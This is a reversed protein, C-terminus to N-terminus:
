LWAARGLADADPNPGVVAVALSGPQFVRRAVRQLDDATVAQIRDVVEDPPEIFGQVLLQEGHRQGLAMTGELGLRFSGATFDRAKHLEDECVPEQGVRRLQETIVQVAEVAQGPGVGASVVFAGTDQYRSAGAGVSYALGRKERVEMFLRSSMGRGLLTTLVGLAHRDPDLRPLARVGLALNAQQNAPRDEVTVPTVPQAPDFPPFTPPRPGRADGFSREALTMVQEHTIKGAVSLVLNTPGYWCGMHALFDGRQMTAVTQEDGAVSWGIPQDGFLARSLLEHAWAGPQDYTRRIEQQVVPKEKELEEASLAPRLVLEGAVELATEARDFPVQNWYCTLERSTFANLVGGSGEIAEAVAQATPFRETGKFLMHELFHTIGNIRREEGRSGVGVFVNVNVSQAHLLPTTVVRLGNALTGIQWASDM